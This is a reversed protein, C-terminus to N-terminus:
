TPRPKEQAKRRRLTVIAEEIDMVTKMTPNPDDTNFYRSLQGGDMALERALAMRSVGIDALRKDVSAFYEKIPQDGVLNLRIRPTVTFSDEMKPRAHANPANPM